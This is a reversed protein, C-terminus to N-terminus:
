IIQFIKELNKAVAKPECSEMHIQDKQSYVAVVSRLTADVARAM